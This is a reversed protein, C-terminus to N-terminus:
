TETYHGTEPDFIQFCEVDCDDNAIRELFREKAKEILTKPDTGEPAEVGVFSTLQFDFSVIKNTM